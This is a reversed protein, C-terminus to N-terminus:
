SLKFLNKHQLMKSVVNVNIRHCYAISVLAMNTCFINVAFAYEAGLRVDAISSKAFISM